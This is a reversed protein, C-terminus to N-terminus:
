VRGKLATLECALLRDLGITGATYRGTQVMWFRIAIADRAVALSTGYRRRFHQIQQARPTM